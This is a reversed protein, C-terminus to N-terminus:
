VKVSKQLKEVAERNKRVDLMEKRLRAASEKVQAEHAQLTRRAVDDEAKSSERELVLEAERAAQEEAARQVREQEQRLAQQRERIEAAVQEAAM